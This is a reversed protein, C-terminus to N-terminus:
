LLCIAHLTIIPFFHILLQIVDKYVICVQWFSMGLSFFDFKYDVKKLFHFLLYLSIIYSLFSFYLDSDPFYLFSFLEPIQFLIMESIFILSSLVCSYIFLYHKLIHTFNFPSKFEFLFLSELPLSNSCTPLFSRVDLCYSDRFFVFCILCIM